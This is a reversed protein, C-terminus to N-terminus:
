RVVFNVYLSGSCNTAATCTTNYSTRANGGSYYFSNNPISAITNAYGNTTSTKLFQGATGANSKVWAPGVTTVIANPAGASTAGDTVIVTGYLKASASVAPSLSGNTGADVLMGLEVAASTTVAEKMASSFTRVDYINDITTGPATGISQVDALCLIPASVNFTPMGSTPSSLGTSSTFAPVSNTGVLCIHGWRNTATLTTSGPLSPDGATSLTTQPVNVRRGGSYAVCPQISVTTASSWSVKCPGSSGPQILSPLDYSNNPGGSSPIIGFTLLGLTDPNSVDVWGSKGMCGRLSGMSTNYYLAGQNVTEACAAASAEATIDGNYSDVQFLNLTSNTTASGIIVKGDPNVSFVDSGSDQIAFRGNSPTSGGGDPDCSTTCQLNILVNSDTASDPATILFDKADSLLITAPSGSNNYVDQLNVNAGVGCNQFYMEGTANTKLCTGADGMQSPLTLTYDSATGGNSPSSIPNANPGRLFVKNAGFSTSFSISGTTATSAGLALTPTSGIGSGQIALGGAMTTNVGTHGITINGPGAPGTGVDLILNGSRGTAFTSDGSKITLDEGHGVTSDHSRLTAVVGIGSVNFGGTEKATPYSGTQLSVYSGASAAYGACTTNSVCIDYAATGIIAKMKGVSADYYLSGTHAANITLPDITGQDLQLLTVQGDSGSNDGIKIRNDTTNATFLTQGGSASQIRFATTSNTTNRFNYSATQVNRKFTFDDFYYTGAAGSQVVASVRAYVANAPATGTVELLTYSAPSGNYNGSRSIVTKDKDYWTIQVGADGNTGSQKIYGSLYYTDGPTIERYSGAFFDMYSGNPLVRMYHNGTHSNAADQPFSAQTSGFWGEEGGSISGGAEFGPNSIGNDVSTTGNSIVYDNSSNINYLYDNSANLVRFASSQNTTGQVTVQGDHGVGFLVQGLTGSGGNSGRINFIDAGISTDADQIDITSRIADLKIEPTTAPNTGNNYTAQLTIANSAGGPTWATGNWIMTATTNAKMTVSLMDLGTNAQLTFDLSGSGTTIYVMRGATTNSPAPLTITNDAATSSVLVTGNNDVLSQTITCNVACPAMTGATFATSAINVIGNYGVGTGAGGAITIDGGNNNGTGAANGGQLILDGGASAAGSPNASGAAITLDRGAIGAPSTNISISHNANSGFLIDGSNTVAYAETGNQQYQLFNGTSTKNIYISATNTAVDTQLGQAIQLFNDATKGNLMTANMAYAVSSLRKMPVMEGDPACSTFPTCSVNTNGINMSLWLTDSNWDIQSAFPNISGLQVSMYGNVVQVGKGGSNLWDETWELTGGPNGATTGTGDQYIKFQINYFGDPVVAGQANLLRGQFNMQQNTAAHAKPAVSLVVMFVGVLLTSVFLVRM